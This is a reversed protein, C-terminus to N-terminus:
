TRGQAALAQAEYVLQRVRAVQAPSSVAVQSVHRLTGSDVTIEVYGTMRDEKVALFLLGLLCLLFFIIACVIAWGPIKRETRSLDLAIWHSGALPASGNPTVVWHRTVAIDGITLLV